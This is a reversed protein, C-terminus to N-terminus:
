ETKVQVNRMDVQLPYGIMRVPILIALSLLMMVGCLIGTWGLIRCFNTMFADDRRHKACHTPGSEKGDKEQSPFMQLLGVGIGISLLALLWNLVGPVLLKAGDRM